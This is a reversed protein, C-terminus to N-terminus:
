YSFGSLLIACPLVIALICFISVVKLMRQVGVKGVMAKTSFCYLNPAPCCELKDEAVFWLEKTLCGELYSALCIRRENIIIPKTDRMQQNVKKAISEFDLM